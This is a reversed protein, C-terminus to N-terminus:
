APMPGARRRLLLAAAFIVAAGALALGTVAPLGAGNKVAIAILAWILPLAYEPAWARARLVALAVALAGAIGIFAWGVPGALLGYGAATAGLSVFSAATLWGAYIAVPAQLWWRDARPARLLALVAFVLMGFIVVTAWIASTNAIALWFIGLTLSVALPWRVRDWGPDDARRWLGYGASVILWGYILGWISFAYGDPQIPPDTQPIPLQDARYGTFPDTFAPSVAFAVTLALILLASTHKMVM